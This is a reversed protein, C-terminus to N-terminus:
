LDAKRLKLLVLKTKYQGKGAATREEVIVRDELIRAVRGGNLGIVTGVSLPFFKGKVDAVIATRKQENGAIGILKFEEVNARQLPFISMPKIKAMTKLMAAKRMKQDVEKEVFPQFPDAKGSPHYAYHVAGAGPLTKVSGAQGSAAQVPSSSLAWAQGLGLLLSLFLAGFIIDIIRRGKNTRRKQKNM